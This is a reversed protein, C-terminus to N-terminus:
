SKSWHVLKVIKKGLKYAKSNLASEAQRLEKQNNVLFREIQKQEFLGLPNMGRYIPFSNNWKRYFQQLGEEFVMQGSKSVDKRYFHQILIDRTACVRKNFSLVQMCIDMDYMHFGAYSEDFAINSFFEKRAFLCFGDLAVVDVINNDSDWQFNNSGEANISYQSSFPMESWYLPVSLLCHSGELGLLGISDDRLQNVIISGWDNSRFLIDEHCFSLIEGHARRVGENYATAITYNNESNDIVVLEYECGVTDAINARLEAPIDPKRSCIIISIM